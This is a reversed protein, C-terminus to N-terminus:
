RTTTPAGAAQLSQQLTQADVLNQQREAEGQQGAFMVGILSLLQMFPMGLEKSAGAFHQPNVRGSAGMKALFVQAARIDRPLPDM